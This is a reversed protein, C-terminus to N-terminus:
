FSALIGALNRPQALLPAYGFLANIHHFFAHSGENQWLSILRENVKIYLREIDSPDQLPPHLGLDEAVDMRIVDIMELLMESVGDIFYPWSKQIEISWNGDSSDEINKGGEEYSFERLQGNDILIKLTSSKQIVDNILKSDEKTMYCLLTLQHGSNDKIARRHFRWLGIRERNSSLIERFLSDVVFLDLWWKPKENDPWNMRFYFKHWIKMKFDGLTISRLLLSVPIQRVLRYSFDKQRTLGFNEPTM